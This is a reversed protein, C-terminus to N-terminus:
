QEDAPGGARLAALPPAMDTVFGVSPLVSPSMILIEGIWRTNGKRLLLPFLFSVSRWRRHDLFPPSAESPPASRGVSPSRSKAESWETLSCLACTGEEEEM